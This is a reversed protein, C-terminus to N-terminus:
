RRELFQPGLRSIQREMGVLAPSLQGGSLRRGRCGVTRRDVKGALAGPGASNSPFISAAYQIGFSQASSRNRSRISIWGRADGGGLVAFQRDGITADTSSASEL